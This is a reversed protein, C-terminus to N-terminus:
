TSAAQFGFPILKKAEKLIKDVKAESLGKIATLDKKPTRVLAEVSYIGKDYLKKINTMPVGFAQLKNISIPGIQDDLGIKLNSVDKKDNKHINETTMKTFYIFRLKTRKDFLNGM